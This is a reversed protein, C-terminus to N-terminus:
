LGVSLKIAAIRGCSITKCDFFLVRVLYSISGRKDWSAGMFGQQDVLAM